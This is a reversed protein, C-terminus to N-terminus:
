IEALLYNRACTISLVSTRTEKGGKDSGSVSHTAPLVLYASLSWCGMSPQAIAGPSKPSQVFMQCINSRTDLIIYSFEQHCFLAPQWLFHRLYWLSSLLYKVFRAHWSHCHFIASSAPHKWVGETKLLFFPLCLPSFFNFFFFAIGPNQCSIEESKDRALSLSGGSVEM